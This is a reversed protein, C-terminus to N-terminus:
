QGIKENGVKSGLTRNTLGAGQGKHMPASGRLDPLAFTVIGDGGYTTGLLSFLAQNQNIPLLQGNCFAWGQPAFNGAFMAIEGLYPNLGKNQSPYVGVLAIIYSIGLSPQVNSSAGFTLTSGDGSFNTGKITGNVDLKQGPNPQGIGVNGNLSSVLDNGNINWDSDSGGSFQQWAFGDYFYFNNDDTVYVLLGTAPIGILDRESATMRPVLMGKETSKVDLMASADADSGDSSVAVQASLNVSVILCLTLALIIYNKM